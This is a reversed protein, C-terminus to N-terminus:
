EADMVDSFQAVLDSVDKQDANPIEKIIDMFIKHVARRAKAGKVPDDRSLHNILILLQEVAGAISTVGGGALMGGALKGITTADIIPDAM